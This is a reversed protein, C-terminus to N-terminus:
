DCSGLCGWMVDVTIGAAAPITLGLLREAM